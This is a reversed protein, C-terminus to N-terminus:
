GEPEPIRWGRLVLWFSFVLEGFFTVMLFKVDLGPYLYPRLYTLAYGVGALMLLVGLLKPIYGSRAVLVGLLVLHIGFLVLGFGEPSRFSRILLEVQTHFPGAGIAERHATDDILRLATVLHMLGGFAIATYVLRLWAVLLSLARNVPALLVYLAWALVVDGLFTLFLALIGAVLLGRHAVVNAVTAATDGAVILKPLVYFEAFPAGGLVLPALSALGAVLAAQRLTLGLETKV